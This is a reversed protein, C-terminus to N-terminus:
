GGEKTAFCSPARSFCRDPGWGTAILLRVFGEHVGGGSIVGRGVEGIEAQNEKGQQQYQEVSEEDRGLEGHDLQARGLDLSDGALMAPAALDQARHMFLQIGVQGGALQADGQGRQPKAPDALRCERVQEFRQQGHGADVRRRQDVADSEEGGEEDNGVQVDHHAFQRRFGPRDALGLQQRQPRRHRKVQEVPQHVRRDVQEVGAGVGDQADGALALGACLVLVMVAALLQLQDQVGVARQVGGIRLDLHEGRRDFHALQFDGVPRVGAFVEQLQIVVCRQCLDEVHNAEVLVAAIRDVVPILAFVGAQQM